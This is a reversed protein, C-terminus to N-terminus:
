TEDNLYERAMYLAAMSRAETCDSRYVLNKLNHMQWPIVELLEPEDGELRSPYLDSALVIHTEHGMFTPAMTVSNIIKLKNAAMGVEEQLERNAADIISEGNDIGGKPLLLEYQETGAAYERILLVTDDDLMPVIMVTSLSSHQLRRYHREVGNTFKLHLEEVQLSRMSALQQKSFTSRQLIQPAQRLQDTIKKIM